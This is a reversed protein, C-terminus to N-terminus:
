SCSSLTWKSILIGRGKIPLGHLKLSIASRRYMLHINFTERSELGSADLRNITSVAESNFMWFHGNNCSLLCPKCPAVVHYGVVNGSFTCSFFFVSVFCYFFFAFESLCTLIWINNVWKCMLAEHHAGYSIRCQLIIPM